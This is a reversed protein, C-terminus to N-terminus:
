ESVAPVMSAGTTATPSVEPSGPTEDATMVGSETQEDGMAPQTETDTEALIEDILQPLQNPAAVFQGNIFLTPTANISLENGATVDALVRDRYESSQIKEQFEATDIGLDAAYGVFLSQAEEATKAKSWTPQEAFLRDHYEWFKGDDAAVEAAQAALQAYPHISTLPYHRYVVRVDEPYAEAVQKVFPEVAKCAPCQFDSFEVITVRANEPGFSHPADGTVMTSDYQQEGPTSPSTQSSSFFVAVGVVMLLTGLITVLLLPINKMCVIYCLIAVLSLLSDSSCKADFKGSIHFGPPIVGGAL